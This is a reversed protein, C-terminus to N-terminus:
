LNAEIYDAIESFSKGGDNMEALLRQQIFSLGIFDKDLVDTVSDAYRASGISPRGKADWACGNIEAFVGLCCLSGNDGRLRDTTQNFVGSRLAEIWKAKLNADM